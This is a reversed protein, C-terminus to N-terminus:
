YTPGSSRRTGARATTQKMSDEIDLNARNQLLLKVATDDGREAALLLARRGRKNKVNIEVGKELLIKILTDDGNMAALMLATRGMSDRINSEAKKELLKNVILM